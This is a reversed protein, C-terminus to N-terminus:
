SGKESSAWADMDGRLMTDLACCRVEARLGALRSWRDRVHATGHGHPTCATVSIATQSPPAAQLLVLCRRCGAPVARLGLAAGGLAAWHESATSHPAEAPRPAACHTCRRQVHQLPRRRRESGTADRVCHQCTGEQHMNVPAGALRPARGCQQTGASVLPLLATSRRVGAGRPAAYGGPGSRGQAQQTRTPPWTLQEAGQTGEASFTDSRLPALPRLLAAAAAPCISRRPPAQM